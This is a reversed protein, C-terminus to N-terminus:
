LNRDIESMNRCIQKVAPENKVREGIHNSDIIRIDTIGSRISCDVGALSDEIVTFEEIPRNLRNAADIFMSVKDPHLGDDYVITEPDIWRDLHFSEVFFDINPKISASAITFPIEQKKLYDFLEEAGNILHFNETDQKCFERYYQEKLLSYKQELKPDETGGNLYRIIRMNNVGNMKEHLEEETIPKGRLEQSIKSWAKIHKDNDLFLTGNFDFIVSKM